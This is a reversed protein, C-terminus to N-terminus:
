IWLIRLILPCMSPLLDHDHVAGLDTRAALLVRGGLDGDAAVDAPNVPDAQGAGGDVVVGAELPNSLGLRRPRDGDHERSRRGSPSDVRGDEPDEGEASGEGGEEGFRNQSAPSRSLIQSMDM